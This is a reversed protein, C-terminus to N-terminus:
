VNQFDVVLSKSVTQPIFFCHWAKLLRACYDSQTAGSKQYGLMIPVGLGAATCRWGGSNACVAHDPDSSCM